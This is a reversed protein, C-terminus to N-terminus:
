LYITILVWPRPQKLVSSPTNIIKEEILFKIANSVEYDSVLGEQWFVFIDKVFSPIGIDETYPLIFSEATTKSDINNSDLKIVGHDLLNEIAHLIETDSIRGEEWWKANTKFWGPMETGENSKQAIAIPSSIVAQFFLVAGLFFIVSLIKLSNGMM